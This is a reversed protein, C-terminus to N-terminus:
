FIHALKVALYQVQLFSNNTLELSMAISILWVSTSSDVDKTVFIAPFYLFSAALQRM